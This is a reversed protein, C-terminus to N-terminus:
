LPLRHKVVLWLNKTTLLSFITKHGELHSFFHYFSISVNNPPVGRSSLCLTFKSLIYQWVRESIFRESESSNNNCEKNLPMLWNYILSVRVDSIKWAKIERLNMLQQEKTLWQETALSSVFMSSVATKDEVKNTSSKLNRFHIVASCFELLRMIRGM